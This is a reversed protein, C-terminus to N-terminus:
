NKLLYDYAGREITQRAIAENDADTLILIPLHSTASFIPEFRELGLSGAPKLDVVIGAVSGQTLRELAEAVGSVWEVRLENAPGDLLTGLTAQADDANCDVLLVCHHAECDM